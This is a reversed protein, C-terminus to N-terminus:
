YEIETPDTDKINLTMEEEGANENGVIKDISMKMYKGQATVAVDGNKLIIEGTGEFIRSTNRTIRGIIKIEEGLPVPKKFRTSLEVTVGWADPNYIEIARGITEDLLATSIGGHVRGPYSQHEEKPTCIAVVEGNDLEFFEAELGIENNLGCVICKNSNSQKRLVKHKM